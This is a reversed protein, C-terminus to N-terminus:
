LIARKIKKWNHDTKKRVELLSKEQQKLKTYEDDVAKNTGFNIITKTSLRNGIDKAEILQGASLVGGIINGHQCYIQKRATCFPIKLM